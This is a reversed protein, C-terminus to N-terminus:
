DRRISEFMAQDGIGSSTPAGLSSPDVSSREVATAESANRMEDLAHQRPLHLPAQASRFSRPLSGRSESTMSSGLPYGHGM